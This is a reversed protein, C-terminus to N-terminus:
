LAGALLFGQETANLPGHSLIQVIWSPGVDWAPLGPCFQNNRLGPTGVARSAGPKECGRGRRGM